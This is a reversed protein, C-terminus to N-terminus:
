PELLRVLVGWTSEWQDVLSGKAGDALWVTVVWWVTGFFVSAVSEADVDSRAQGSAQATSVFETFRAVGDDKLRLLERTMGSDTAILNTSLLTKAFERNDDFYAMVERFIIRMQEVFSTPRIDLENFMVHWNRTIYAALKIMLDDKSEFHRYVAPETVGVRAALKRISFNHVGEDAILQITARIIDVQRETFDEMLNDVTLM